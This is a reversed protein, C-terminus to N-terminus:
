EGGNISKKAEDCAEHEEKTLEAGFAHLINKIHESHVWEEKAIDNFIPKYADIAEVALEKYKVVDHYEDLLAEHLKDCFTM